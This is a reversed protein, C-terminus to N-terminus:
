RRVFRDLLLIPDADGKVLGPLIIFCKGNVIGSCAVTREGGCWDKPHDKYLYIVPLTPRHNFRAPPQPIVGWLAAATTAALVAQFM